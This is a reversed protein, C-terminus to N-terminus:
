LELAELAREMEEEERQADSVRVSYDAEEDHLNHLSIQTSPVNDVDEDSFSEDSEFDLTEFSLTVRITGYMPVEDGSEIVKTNAARGKKCKKLLKKSVQAKRQSSVLELTREIQQSWDGNFLQVIDLTAFGLPDDGGVRDFDLVKILLQQAGSVFFRRLKLQCRKGFIPSLTKAVVPTKKVSGFDGLQCTVYPDSFGNSDAALLHTCAAVVVSVIGDQPPRLDVHQEM